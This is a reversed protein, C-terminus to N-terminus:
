ESSPGDQMVLFTKDTLLKLVALIDHEIIERPADYEVVLADIIAGVTSEGNCRDVIDQSTEDLVM